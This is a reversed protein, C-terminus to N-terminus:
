GGVYSVYTFVYSKDRAEYTYVYMYICYLQIPIFLYLRLSFASRAVSATTKKRAYPLM